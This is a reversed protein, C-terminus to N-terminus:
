VINHSCIKFGTNAYINVKGRMETYKHLIPPTSTFIILGVGLGEGSSLPTFVRVEQQLVPCPSGTRSHNAHCIETPRHDGRGTRGTIVNNHKLYPFNNNFLVRTARLYIILHVVINNLDMNKSAPSCPM